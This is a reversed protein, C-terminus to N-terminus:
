YDKPRRFMKEAPTQSRYQEIADLLASEVWQYPKKPVPKVNVEQQPDSKLDLVNLENSESATTGNVTFDPKVNVTPVEPEANLVPTGWVIGNRSYYALQKCNDNCYKRTNRKIDEIEKGCFECHKEM